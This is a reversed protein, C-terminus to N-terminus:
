KLQQRLSGLMGGTKPTQEIAKVKSARLFMRLRRLNVIVIQYVNIIYLVNSVGALSRLEWPLAPPHM